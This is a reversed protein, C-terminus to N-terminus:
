NGKSRVEYFAVSLKRGEHDVTILANVKLVWVSRQSFFFDIQSDSSAVRPLTFDTVRWKLKQMQQQASLQESAYINM